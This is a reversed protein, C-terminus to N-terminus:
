AEDPSRTGIAHHLKGILSLQETKLEIYMSKAYAHLSEPYDIVSDWETYDGATWKAVVARYAAVHTVFELICTPRRTRGYSVCAGALHARV